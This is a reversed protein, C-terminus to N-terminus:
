AASELRGVAVIADVDATPLPVGARRAERSLVDVAAPILRLWQDAALLSGAADGFRAVALGRVFGYRFLPHLVLDALVLVVIFALVAEASSSLGGIAGRGVAAGVLVGVAIVLSTAIM